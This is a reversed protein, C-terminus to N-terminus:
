VLSRIMYGAGRVTEIADDDFGANLKARLRSIQTEVVNTRPDFGFGWVTELLMTKTVIRDGNRLLQELMRFERPQLHISRGARRVERRLLNMEIDRGSLMTTAVPPNSRRLLAKCRAMLEVLAVPCSVCDDAGADLGAAREEPCDVTTRLLIPLV